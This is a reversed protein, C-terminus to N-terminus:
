GSAVPPLFPRGASLAALPGWPGPFRSVSSCRPGPPRPSPTRPRRRRSRAAAEPPRIRERPSASRATARPPAPASIHYDSCSRRAGRLWHARREGSTGARQTLGIAISSLQLQSTQTLSLSSLHGSGRSDAAAAAGGSRWSRRSGASERIRSPATCGPLPGWLRPLGPPWQKGGPWLVLM